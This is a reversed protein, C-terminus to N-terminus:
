KGAIHELLTTTKVRKGFQETYFLVPAGPLSKAFYYTTVEGEEKGQVEYVVCEFKGGPLKISEERTTVRDKPFEAHKQLTTWGMRKPNDGGAFIECGDDDVKTFTVVREKAAKGRVEVKYRYTRGSKTAARIQEWTFPAPHVPGKKTDPEAIPPASAAAAAAPDPSTDIDSEKEPAKAKKGGCAAASLVLAVVIALGVTAFGRSGGGIV